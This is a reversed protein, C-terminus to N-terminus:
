GLLLRYWYGAMGSVILAYGALTNWRTTNRAAYGEHPSRPTNRRYSLSSGANGEPDFPPLPPEPVTDRPTEDSAAPQRKRRPRFIRAILKFIRLIIEIIKM